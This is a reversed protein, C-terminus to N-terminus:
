INDCWRGAIDCGLVITSGETVVRVSPPAISVIPAGKGGGRKQEMVLEVIATGVL